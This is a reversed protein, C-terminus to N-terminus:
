RVAVGPLLMNGDSDFTIDFDGPRKAWATMTVRYPRNPMQLAAIRHQRCLLLHHHLGDNAGVKGGVFPLEAGRGLKWSATVEAGFTCSDLQCMQKAVDAM